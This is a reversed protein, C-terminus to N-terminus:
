KGEVSANNEQVIARAFLAKVAKGLHESRGEEYSPWPVFPTATVVGGFVFSRPCRYRVNVEKIDAVIVNGRECKVDKFDPDFMRISEVDLTGADERNKFFVFHDAITFLMFAASLISLANRGIRWFGDQKARRMLVLDRAFYAVAILCGIASLILQWRIDQDISVPKGTAMLYGNVFQMLMPTAILTSLPVLLAAAYKAKDNGAESQKSHIARIASFVCSYLLFLLAYSYPM